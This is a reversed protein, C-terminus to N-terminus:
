RTPAPAMGTIDIDFTNEGAQVDFALNHQLRRRTKPDRLENCDVEVTNAGVLTTISYTGDKAIPVERIAANPRSVNASHFAIQGNNVTKSRVRVTGKVTAEELSSSVPPAGDSLGCGPWVVALFVFLWFQGRWHQM